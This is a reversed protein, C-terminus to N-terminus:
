TLAKVASCHQSCYQYQLAVTDSQNHTAKGLYYMIVTTAGKCQKQLAANVGSYRRQLADKIPASQCSKQLNGKLALATGGYREHMAVVECQRRLAEANNIYQKHLTAADM